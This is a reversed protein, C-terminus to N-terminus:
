RYGCIYLFVFAPSLLLAGLVVSPVIHLCYQVMEVLEDTVLRLGM